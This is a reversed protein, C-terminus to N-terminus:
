EEENHTRSIQNIPNVDLLIMYTDEMKEISKYADPLTTMEDAPEPQL